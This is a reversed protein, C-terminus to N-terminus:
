LFELAGEDIPRGEDGTDARHRRSARRHIREVPADTANSRNARVPVDCCDCAVGAAERYSPPFAKLPDEVVGALVVEKRVRVESHGRMWLKFCTASRSSAVPPFTAIGFMSRHFSNALRSRASGHRVLTCLMVQAWVFAAAATMAIAVGSCVLARAQQGSHGAREAIKRMGVM